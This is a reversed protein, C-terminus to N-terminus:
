LQGLFVVSSSICFLATIGILVGKIYEKKGSRLYEGIALCGVLLTPVIYRFDMSCDHPYEFAFIVYSAMMTGWFIYFWACVATNRIKKVLIWVGFAVSLAILFINSFILINAAVPTSVGLQFEGFTSTKFIASALNYEFYTNGFVKRCSYISDKFSGFVDFIRDTFSRFGVYQEQDAGLNPVYAMPVGWGLLNRIPWFMGYPVCSVAFAFYQTIYKGKDTEKIFVYLFMFATAPALYWCSLKAMMAFGISLGLLIIDYIKRNKYWRVVFFIASAMLFVSLCDNNISGALIIFTPHFSVISFPILKALFGFDLLKLLRYFVFMTGTSYLVTLYRVGYMGQELAMGLAMQIKVWIAAIIHHLPPHYFQWKTRVDFTPLHGNEVLYQIYGIHGSGNIRGIDHQRELIDTNLAYRLRLLFGAIFIGFIIALRVDARKFFPKGISNEKIKSLM